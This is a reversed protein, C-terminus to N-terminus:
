ISFTQNGHQTVSQADVVTILPLSNKISLGPTPSSEYTHHDTGSGAEETTAHIRNALIPLSTGSRVAKIMWMQRVFLSEVELELCQIDSHSEWVIDLWHPYLVARVKLKLYPIGKFCRTLTWEWNSACDKFRIERCECARHQMSWLSYSTAMSVFLQSTHIARQQLKNYVRWLM